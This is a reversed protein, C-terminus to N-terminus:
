TEMYKRYDEGVYAFEYILESSETFQKMGNEYLTLTGDALYRGYKPKTGKFLGRMFFPVSKYIYRGDLEDKVDIVYDLTKDGDTFTYHTKAPFNM